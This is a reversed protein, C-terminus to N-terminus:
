RVVLGVIATVAALALAVLASGRLRDSISPRALARAWGDMVDGAALRVEKLCAADYATRRPSSSGARADPPPDAGPTPHPDAGPGSASGYSAIDDFAKKAFASAEDALDARKRHEVIAFIGSGV